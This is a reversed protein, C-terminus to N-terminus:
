PVVQVSTGVPAWNWLFLMPGPPINVCGHTGGYNTGPQGAGNSGPGFVSRWPADHLFYGGDRFLMAYQSWSPPYWYPSGEPWPSIFEWPHYKAMLSYSGPPTPLAPNGTTVYTQLLLHVGSYAYLTQRALSVIIRRGDNPYLIVGAPSRYPEQPDLVIGGLNTRTVNQAHDIVVASFFYYGKAVPRGKSDKGSWTITTIERARLHKFYFGATATRDGVRYLTLQVRAHKNVSFRLSTPGLYPNFTFRGPSLWDIRPAQRDLQLRFTATPSWNGARDVSRLALFWTGDALNNLTLQTQRTISGPPIVHARRELVYSFGTIGSITDKSSWKLVVVRTNYWHRESPNTPSSIVPRSPPTRDVGFDPKTSGVPAFSVWPGALGGADVLRAQWHYTTGNALSDAPVVATGSSSLVGGTFNPENKFPVTFPQLDVEPTLSAGPAAVATFRLRISGASIWSGGALPKGNKELAMSLNTPPPPASPTDAAARSSPVGLAVLVCLLGALRSTPRTLHDRRSTPRTM